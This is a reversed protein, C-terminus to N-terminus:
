TTPRRITTTASPAAAAEATAAADAPPQYGLVKIGRIGLARNILLGVPERQEAPLGAYLQMLGAFAQRSRFRCLAQVAGPVLEAPLQGLRALLFDETLDRWLRRDVQEALHILAATHDQVEDPLKRRVMECVGPRELLGGAVAGLERGYRACRAATAWGLLHLLFHGLHEVDGELHECLRLARRTEEEQREPADLWGFLGHPLAALNEAMVRQLMRLVEEYLDREVMSIIRNIHVPRGSEALVRLALLNLNINDMEVFRYVAEELPNDLTLKRAKLKKALFALVTQMEVVYRGADLRLFSAITALDDKNWLKTLSVAILYTLYFEDQERHFLEALFQKVEPRAQNALGEIAAGRLGETQHRDGALAMLRGAVDPLDLFSLEHIAFLRQKEDAHSLLEVCVSHLLPDPLQRFFLAGLNRRASTEETTALTLLRRAVDLNPFRLLTYLVMEVVRPETEAELRALLVPTQRRVAHVTLGAYAAARVATDPHSIFNGLIRHKRGVRFNAVRRLILAIVLPETEVELLELLREEGEAQGSTALATVLAEKASADAQDWLGRFHPALFNVGHATAVEIGFRRLYPEPSHVLRFIMRDREAVPMKDVINRLEFVMEPDQLALMIELMEPKCVLAKADAILRCLQIRFAGKTLNVLRRFSRPRFGNAVVKDLQIQLQDLTVLEDFVITQEGIAAATAATATPTATTATARRMAM